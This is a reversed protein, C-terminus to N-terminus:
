QRPTDPPLNMRHLLDQFRPDSRLPDFQPWVKSFVLDHDRVQYAKQLWEIAQNREGLGAYVVAIAWPDVYSRGSPQKLDELIKTAEASNGSAAYAHAVFTPLQPDRSLEVARKLEVLARSYGRKQEYALGLCLHALAYNPAIELTHLDQQIADDHRDTWYL